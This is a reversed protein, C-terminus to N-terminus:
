RKKPIYGTCRVPEKLAEPSLLIDDAVLLVIQEDAAEFARIYSYGPGHNSQRIYQVRCPAQAMWQEVVTRTDDSSGDDVIVVEYEGGDLKQNAFHALTRRFTEREITPPCPSASESQRSESEVM